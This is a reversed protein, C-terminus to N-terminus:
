SESRAKMIASRAIDEAKGLLAAHKDDDVVEVQGLIHLLGELACLVDPAAAILRADAIAGEGDGYVLAIAGCDSFERVIEQVMLEYPEGTDANFKKFKNQKVAWSGSLHKTSM